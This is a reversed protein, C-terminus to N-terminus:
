TILDHALLVERLRIELAFLDADSDPHANIYLWTNADGEGWVTLFDDVSAYFQALGKNLSDIVEMDQVVVPFMFTIETVSEPITM